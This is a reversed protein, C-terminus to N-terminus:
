RRKQWSYTLLALAGTMLLALPGPEPITPLPNSSDWFGFLDGTGGPLNLDLAYQSGSLHSLTVLEVHGTDRDLRTLSDFNSGTFDFALHYWESADAASGTSAGNVIMFTTGDVFSCDTNDALLPNFYGIVVDSYTTTSPHALDHGLPTIGTIYPSNGAGPTWTSINSPRNNNSVGGTKGSIMRVDTSLLRVLAPSLNRSQRNTEAVDYFAATPSSCGPTSFMVPAIGPSGMDDFTFASVWTYGFAWSAFQELRTRSEPPLPDSYSSRYTNLYQGYPIPKAGTGDNGLLGAARYMQMNKYWDKRTYNQPVYADFTILDPNTNRMYTALQASTLRNGYCNSYTLATPYLVNWNAFMAAMQTQRAPQDIDTVEDGYGFSVFRDKYPLESPTLYQGYSSTIDGWMRGWTTGAPLTPLHYAAGDPNHFPTLTTFHSAAWVNDSHSGVLAQIQLGRDLIIQRGRSISVSTTLSRQEAAYAATGAPNAPERAASQYMPLEPRLLDAAPAEPASHLVCFVCVSAIMLIQITKMVRNKGM